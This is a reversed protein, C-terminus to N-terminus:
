PRRLQALADDAGRALGRARAELEAEVVVGDLHTRARGSAAEEVLQRGLDEELEVEAPRPPGARIRDLQQLARASADREHV